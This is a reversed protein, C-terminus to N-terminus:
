GITIGAEQLRRRVNARSTMLDGPPAPAPQNVPPVPNNSNSPIEIPPPPTAVKIAEKAKQDATVRSVQTLIINKRIPVTAMLARVGKQTLEDRRKDTSAAAAQKFWSRASSRAQIYAPHDNLKKDIILKLDELVEPQDKPISNPVLTEIDKDIAQKLQYDVNQEARREAEEMSVTQRTKDQNTLSEIKQQMQRMQAEQQQIQYALQQQQTVQAQYDTRIKDIKQKQDPESPDLGYTQSIQEVSPITIPVPQNPQAYGGNFGNAPPPTAGPAPKFPEWATPNNGTRIRDNIAAMIDPSHVLIQSMAFMEEGGLGIIKRSMIDYASAIHTSVEESLEGKGELGQLTSPLSEWLFEEQFTQKLKDYYEPENEKLQTLVEKPNFEDLPVNTSLTTGPIQGAQVEELQARIEAAENRAAELELRAQDREEKRALYSSRFNEIGEQKSLDAARVEEETLDRKPDLSAPEKPLEAPPEELPPTNTNADDPPPMLRVDDPVEYDMIDAM